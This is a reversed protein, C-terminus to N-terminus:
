MIESLETVREAQAYIDKHWNSKRWYAHVIGEYVWEIRIQYIRGEYFKSIKLYEKAEVSSRVGLAELCESVTEVDYDDYNDPASLLLMDLAYDSTFESSDVYLIRRDLEQALELFRTIGEEEPWLATGETSLISHPYILFGRSSIESQIEKWKERLSINTSTM